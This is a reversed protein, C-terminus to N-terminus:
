TVPSAKFSCGGEHQLPAGTTSQLPQALPASVHFPSPMTIGFGQCNQFVSGHHEELFDPANNEAVRWLLYESFGGPGPCIDAFRLTHPPSGQEPILSQLLGARYDLNAMKLASAPAHRSHIKFISAGFSECPNTATRSQVSQRPEVNPPDFWTKVCNLEHLLMQMCWPSEHDFGDTVAQKVRSTYEPISGPECGPSKIFEDPRYPQQTEIQELLQEEKQKEKKDQRQKEHAADKQVQNRDLRLQELLADLDEQFDVAKPAPVPSYDETLAYDENSGEEYYDGARNATRQM